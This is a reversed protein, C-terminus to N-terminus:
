QSINQLNNQNKASVTHFHHHSPEIIDCRACLYEYDAVMM